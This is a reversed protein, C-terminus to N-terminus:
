LSGKYLLRNPTSGINEHIVGQTANNVIWKAVSSPSASTHSALYLAAVGAVHPSAMSTGSITNTGSNLWASTIDVGPAYVEVKDGYNSFWARTDTNDSAAVTIVKEARAPSYNNADDDSNGAAVAVTVGKGVLNNAAADVADDSGGGLSLNAVAPKVRNKAVWNLGDIVGAWTGYGDCDLVRVAVLKVGKAVGYTKGGVTGAVHTGHGNCDQGNQGDGVADYGVSARGSFEPHSTQIGTDIIYVTVNSATTKYKYSNSLPLSSQDIRDLGWSPAPSQTASASVYRDQEIRLVNPDRQLAALQGLSLKASFGNLAASYVRKTAISNGNLFSAPQVDSKLTVIYQGPVVGKKAVRMSQKQSGAAAPTVTGFSVVVLALALFGILRKM